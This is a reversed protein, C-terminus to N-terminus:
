NRSFIINLHAAGNNARRERRGGAATFNLHARPQHRHLKRCKEVVALGVSGDQLVAQHFAVPDFAEGLEQEAKERLENIFCGAYEYHLYYAPDEIIM